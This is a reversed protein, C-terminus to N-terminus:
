ETIDNMLDNMDNHYKTVARRLVVHERDYRESLSDVESQDYAGVAPLQIISIVFVGLAFVFFWVKFPIKKLAQTM